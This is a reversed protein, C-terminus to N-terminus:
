TRSRIRVSCAWNGRPVSKAFYRTQILELGVGVFRGCRHADGAFALGAACWSSVGIKLGPDTVSLNRGRRNAYESLGRERHRMEHLAFKRSGLARQRPLRAWVVAFFFTVSFFFFVVVVASFFFLFFLFFFSSSSLSRLACFPSTSPQGLLGPILGGMPNKFPTNARGM